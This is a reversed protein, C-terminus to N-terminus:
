LRWNLTESGANVFFRLSFKTIIRLHPNKLLNYGVKDFHLNIRQLLNQVIM